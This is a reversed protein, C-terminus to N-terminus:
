KGLRKMTKRDAEHDIMCVAGAWNIPNLNTNM